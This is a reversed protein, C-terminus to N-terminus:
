YLFKLKTGINYEDSAHPAFIAQAGISFSINKSFGVDVGTGVIVENKHARRGEVVFSDSEIKFIGDINNVSNLYEHIWKAYINPKIYSNSEKKIYSFDLGVSSKLSNISNSNLHLNVSNAGSEDFSNNELSAYTLEVTPTLTSKNIQYRYGGLTSISYINGSYSSTAKRNLFSVERDTSINARGLSLSSFSFWDDYNYSAYLHASYSKIKSFSDTEDEDLKQNLFSIALGVKVSNIMESDAGLIIGQTTQKYSSIDNQSDVKSGSALLSGWALASEKDGNKASKMHENLTNKLFFENELIAYSTSTYIKPALESLNKQFSKLSKQTDFVNLVKKADNSSSLSLSELARGISKQSLNAGFSEYSNRTTQLTLDGGTKSLM